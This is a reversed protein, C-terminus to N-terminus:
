GQLRLRAILVQERVILESDHPQASLLMEARAAASEDLIADKWEKALYDRLEAVSDARTAFEFTGAREVAFWGREVAQTLADSAQGYEIFDDTEQIRGVQVFPEGVRAEITPPIGSPHIDILRGDPDLCQCIKELAHVM